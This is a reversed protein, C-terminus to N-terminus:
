PSSPTTGSSGGTNVKAGATVFGLFGIGVQGLTYQDLSGGLPDAPGRELSQRMYGQVDAGRGAATAVGSQHLFPILRLAEEPTLTEATRQVKERLSPALEGHERKSAVTRM